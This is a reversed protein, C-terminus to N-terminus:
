AVGSVSPVISPSWTLKLAPFIANLPLTLPSRMSSVRVNLMGGRLDKGIGGESSGFGAMPGAGSPVSGDNEGPLRGM